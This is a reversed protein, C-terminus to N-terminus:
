AYNELLYSTLCHVGVLVYMMKREGYSPAHLKYSRLIQVEVGIFPENMASVIYTIGFM